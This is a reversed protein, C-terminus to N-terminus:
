RVVVLPGLKEMKKAGIGKVNDLDAVSKFRGNEQRYAVIREAMKPGIGPLKQLEELSASNLDVPHLRLAAEDKHPRSTPTKKPATKTPATSRSPAEEFSRAPSSDSLASSSAPSSEVPPPAPAPVPVERVIVIPKPTVKPTPAAKLPVSIKAGDEVFAALNLANPDANPTAGGAKQLADCIRADARLSYVGPKQVAGAVHVRVSAASSSQTTIPGLPMPRQARVGLGYVWFYFCYAALLGALVLWARNWPPKSAGGEEKELLSLDFEEGRTPASTQPELSGAMLPFPTRGGTYHLAEGLELSFKEPRNKREEPLASSFIPLASSKKPL